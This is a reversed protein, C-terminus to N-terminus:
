DGYGYAVHVTPTTPVSQCTLVWGEEVEDPTLANNVFMAVEGQLLRRTASHLELPAGAEDRRKQAADRLLKEIPREPENAM